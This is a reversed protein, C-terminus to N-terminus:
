ATEYELDLQNKVLNFYCGRRLALEEHTGQETIRGKDIVLIKDANRVTSLRHAIILVTRGVYFRQLNHIIRQETKADLASTAEDLFLYAPNRYVARAILLRQMQGRSLGIGNRGVVTDYGLPLSEIFEHICATKAAALVNDQNIKEDGFAINRAISDSFLRGDQLVVGCVKRLQTHSIHNLDMSGFFISGRSPLYTKLILRMLTTKGSGSEGVIATVRGAPIRTNLDEIIDPYAPGGYGFSLNKLCIDAQLPPSANSVLPAGADVSKQVEMIRDLSLKTDQLQQLFSVFQTLPINLQAVIYQIALLEGLTINGEIVQYAAWFTILANKFLNIATAGGEQAVSLQFSKISLSLIKTQLRQWTNLKQDQANNLQIEEMGQIMEMLQDHNQSLNSFNKYDLTKRKKLFILTYCVFLLSMGLFIVFVIRNFSIMIFSFVIFNLLAMIMSNSTFSFFNQLRSHDQIRQMLDGEMKSNFYSLPLRFIRGLFNTLMSIKIKIGLKMLFYNQVYTFVTEFFYLALQAALILVLLHYNSDKIGLDVINRTIYPLAYQIGSVLIICCLFLPLKNRFAKLHEKIFDFARSKKGMSKAAHFRPTLNLILAIGKQSDGNLFGKEFEEWTYNVFGAAPDATYVKRKTIRYVVIFHKQQWYVIVPLHVNDKFEATGAKVGVPDFGLKRAGESLALLNIGQRNKFCIQNIYPLSYKRGHHRAIMSLCAAGCDSTEQQLQIPFSKFM